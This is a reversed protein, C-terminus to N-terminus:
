EHTLRGTGAHRVASVCLLKKNLLWETKKGRERGLRGPIEYSCWTHVQVPACQIEKLIECFDGGTKPPGCTVSWFLFCFPGVRHTCCCTRGSAYLLLDAFSADDRVLFSSFLDMMKKETKKELRFVKLDPPDCIQVLVPFSKIKNCCLLM